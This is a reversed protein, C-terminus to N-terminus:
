APSTPRRTSPRSPTTPNGAAPPSSLPPLRAVAALAATTGFKIQTMLMKRLLVQTLLVVGSSAPGGTAVLVTSRILVPPVSASAGKAALAAGLAPGAFGRRTLRGKLRQRAKALRCRLTPVTCRLQDAAQDYTLGELDCLVVPLRQSEPLRDIEEHLVPRLDHGTEHGPCSAGSVAMARAEAERLRRKKAEAKVEVAARYAVRHLWGGLTDGGRISQAKKALVLFTTQFADEVDHEGKLVARCTALVMPGHRAM